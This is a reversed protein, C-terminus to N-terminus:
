LTRSHRAGGPETWEMHGRRNVLDVKLEARTEANRWVLRLAGGASSEVELKGAFAPHSARFRILDMLRLVVPKDLARHAESTSFNHRNIARGDGTEIVTRPDNEGALLGVYYIQPIGPAFLQIARAVLYAPDNADLASYYTINVQHADFGAMPQGTASLLRSINAGRALCHDVVRAMESEPLAGILDPLVPIGDHTDLTTFQRAPSAALHAALFSASGTVLAHLTLLPLAFDYTWYGRHSLKRQTAIEAHVEPLLTLGLEDAETTLWDLFEWTEPEVMFCSTGARKICYGVADLRVTSVGNARFFRLHDVLMARTQPSRVDLDIQESPETRGFTTWIRETTGTEEITVTSFPPKPRRLFIRAVDAAVPEGRPWVKDLTLFMDAFPSQRGRLLFDQFEPSRRSIHNVMLDLIVDFREGLAAIDSWAGFAPDIERYTTPAFGRDGSSPFPPLIHVGGFAGALAPHSLFQGLAALNGGLSDPYTILQPQSRVTM